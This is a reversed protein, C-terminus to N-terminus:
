TSCSLHSRIEAPTAPSIMQYQRLEAPTAPNILQHQIQIRSNNSSPDDSTVVFEIPTKPNILQRQILYVYLPLVPMKTGCILVCAQVAVTSASNALGLSLITSFSYHFFLPYVLNRRWPVTKHSM